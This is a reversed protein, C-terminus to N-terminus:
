MLDKKRSDYEEKSIEGRAYREKLIDMASKKPSAVPGGGREVSRVILWILLILIILGIIWWWVMGWGHHGFDEM